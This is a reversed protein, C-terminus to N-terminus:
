LIDIQKHIDAIVDAAFREARQTIGCRTRNGTAYALEACLKLVMHRMSMTHNTRAALDLLAHTRLRDTDVLLPFESIGSSSFFSSPRTWKVISSIGTATGGPVRTHAAACAAPMSIGM